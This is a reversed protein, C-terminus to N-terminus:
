SNFRADLKKLLEKARALENQSCPCLLDINGLNHDRTSERLHAELALTLERVSALLEPACAILHANSDREVPMTGNGPERDMRAIPIDNKWVMGSHCEWPGLTFPYKM